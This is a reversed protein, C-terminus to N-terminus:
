PCLALRRTARRLSLTSLFVGRVSGVAHGVVDSEALLAHISITCKFASSPSLAPREGCPSRPYFNAAHGCGNGASKDSEALLAHISISPPHWIGCGTGTDSEALLAHISISGSHIGHRLAAHISISSSRSAAMAVRLREGCPSRPYFHRHAIWWASSASDSEALLAHISIGQLPRAPRYLCLREGCPSRPYFHM